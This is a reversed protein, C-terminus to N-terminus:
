VLWIFYSLYKQKHFQLGEYADIKKHKIRCCWIDIEYTYNDKTIISHM